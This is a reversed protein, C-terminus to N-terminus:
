AAETLKAVNAAVADSAQKSAKTVGEYANNAAAIASKALVLTNESGPADKLLEALNGMAAAQFEAIQAEAAARQAAFAGAFIEQVQRGYAAAKKPAAQLAATPLQFLEDPTRASLAAQADRQFEAVVTKATQLNLRTLQEVGQLAEAAVAFLPTVSTLSSDAFLNKTNM